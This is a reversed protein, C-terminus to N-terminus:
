RPRGGCATLADSRNGAISNERMVVEADPLLCVAYGGNGTIRNGTVEGGSRNVFSVGIDRNAAIENNRLVLRAGQALIGGGLVPSPFLVGAVEGELPRTRAIVSNQITGSAALLVPARPDPYARYELAHEANDEFRSDSVDATAGWAFLGTLECRTFSSGRVDARVGPFFVLCPGRTDAMTVRELTVAISSIQSSPDKLFCEPVELSAPPLDECGAVGAFLGAAAVRSIESDRLSVPGAGNIASVGTGFTDLVRVNRGEVTAGRQLLLGVGSSELLSIDDATARANEDLHLGFKAKEVRIARLSLERARAVYIGAPDGGRVTVDALTFRQWGNLVMGEGRAGAAHAVDADRLTVPGPEDVAGIGIGRVDAVALGEVNATGGRRILLAFSTTRSLRTDNLSLDAGNEVHIGIGAAEVKVGRVAIQRARSIYLGAPSGGRISVDRLTFREVETIDIGNGREVQITTTDRGAGRVTIGPRARATKFPRHIGEALCVTGGEAVDFIAGTVDGGPRVTVACSGVLRDGRPWFRTAAVAGAGLLVLLMAALLTSRM